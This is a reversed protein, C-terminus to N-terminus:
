TLCKIYTNTTEGENGDRECGDLLLSSFSITYLFPGVYVYACATAGVWGDVYMGLLGCDCDCCLMGDARGGGVAGTIGYDRLGTIWYIWGLM